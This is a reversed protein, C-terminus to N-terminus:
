YYIQAYFVAWVLGILFTFLAFKIMAQKFRIARGLFYLDLIM